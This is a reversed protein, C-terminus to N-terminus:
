RPSIELKWGFTTAEETVLLPLLPCWGRGQGCQQLTTSTKSLSHTTVPSASIHQIERLSRWPFFFESFVCCTALFSPTQEVATATRNCKLAPPVPRQFLGPVSIDNTCSWSQELPTETFSVLSSLISLAEFGQDIWNVLESCTEGQNYIDFYHVTRSCLATEFSYTDM